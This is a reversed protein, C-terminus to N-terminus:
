LKESFNLYKPPNGQQIGGFASLEVPYPFWLVGRKIPANKTQKNNIFFKLFSFLSEMEHIGKIKNLPEAEEHSEVKPELCPVSSRVREARHPPPSVIVFKTTVEHAASRESSISSKLPSFRRQM